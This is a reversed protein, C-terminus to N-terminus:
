DVHAGPAIVRAGHFRGTAIFVQRTKVTLEHDGFIVRAQFPLDTLLNVAGTGLPLLGLVVQQYALYDVIASVTGDGDGLAM